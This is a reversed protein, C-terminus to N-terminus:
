ILWESFWLFVCVRYSRLLGNSNWLESLRGPNKGCKSFKFTPVGIISKLIKQASLNHLPVRRLGIGRWSYRISALIIVPDAFPSDTKIGRMGM